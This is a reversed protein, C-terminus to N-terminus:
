YELSATEINSNCKLRECVPNTQIASTHVGTDDLRPIFGVRINVTELLYDQFVM